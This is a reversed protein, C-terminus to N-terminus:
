GRNHAGSRTGPNEKVETTPEQLEGPCEEPEKVAQSGGSPGGFVSFLTWTGAVWAECLPGDCMCITCMACTEEM